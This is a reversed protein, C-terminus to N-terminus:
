PYLLIGPLPDARVGHANKRVDVRHLEGDLMGGSLLRDIGGTTRRDMAHQHSGVGACADDAADPSDLVPDTAVAVVRTPSVEDWRRRFLDPRQKRIEGGEAVVVGQRREDLRRDRVRLELRDMWKRIAVSACTAGEDLHDEPPTLQRRGVYWRDADHKGAM